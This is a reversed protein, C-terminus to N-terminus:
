DRGLLVDGAAMGRKRMIPCEWHAGQTCWIFLPRHHRPLLFSMALNHKQRVATMIGSIASIEREHRQWGMGIRHSQKNFVAEYPM